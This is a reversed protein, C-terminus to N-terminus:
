ERGSSPIRSQWFEVLDLWQQLTADNSSGGPLAVMFEYQCPEVTFRIHTPWGAQNNAVTTPDTIRGYGLNDAPTAEDRKKFKGVTVIGFFILQKDTAALVGNAPYHYTSGDPQIFSGLAPAAHRIQDGNKECYANIQELVEPKVMYSKRKPEDLTVTGSPVGARDVRTPSGKETVHEGAVQRDPSRVQSDGQDAAVPTSAVTDSTGRIRQRKPASGGLGVGSMEPAPWYRRPHTDRDNLAAARHTERRRRVQVSLPTM